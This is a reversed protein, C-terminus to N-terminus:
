QVRRAGDVRASPAKRDLQAYLDRLANIDHCKALKSDEVNLIKLPAPTTGGDPMSEILLELQRLAFNTRPVSFTELTSLDIAKIIMEWDDQEFQAGELSITRISRMEAERNLVINQTRTEPDPPSVGASSSMTAACWQAFVRPVMTEGSCVLRITDMHPLQYRIPLKDALQLVRLDASLDNMTLENVRRGYHGLADLLREHSKSLPRATDMEEFSWHYRRLNMSRSMVSDMCALGTASLGAPNLILCILKSGEEKTSSDLLSALEDNFAESADLTEISWGYDRFIGTVFETRRSLARIHMGIDSTLDFLTANDSYDLRMDYTDQNRPNQQPYTIDHLLLKRLACTGDKKLVSNRTSTILEIAALFMEYPCGIQVESLKPNWRIVDALQTAALESDGLITKLRTLRGMRLFERHESIDRSAFEADITEVQGNSLGVAISANLGLVTISKLNPLVGKSTFDEFAAGINRSRITLETLFPSKELIKTLLAKPAKDKLPLATDISLVRLRPAMALSAKSVRIFFDSFNKLELSQIRGNSMLQVIPDYRRGRNMLDRVPGKFHSGDLALDVVNAQTVADSLKRLDDMTVDWKLTIALEQIGLAKALADYFEKALTKSGVAIEISGKEEVYTGSNSEVVNRLQIMASQRSTERFHDFCTWKVHGEFTVLRYLDGYVSGNNKVKLFSQLQRLDGMLDDADFGLQQGTTDMTDVDSKVTGPQNSIFTIAEDVLAGIEGATFDFMRQSEDVLKSQTLPPISMGASTNGYKIMQLVTLVYTGFQEFFEVPRELDYGEHKALHVEHPITSDKAMTHSGCECLYYLRFQEPLLGTGADRRRAAKPLVIFLRPVPYEHLEYTQNSVAQIRNHIIALRDLTELQAQHMKEQMELQKYQLAKSRELEALISRFHRNLTDKLSELQVAQGSLIDQLCKNYLQKYQASQFVESKLTSPQYILSKENDNEDMISFRHLEKYPVATNILLDSKETKSQDAADTPLDQVPESISVIPISPPISLPTSLPTNSDSVTRPGADEIVADLEVGPHYAIQLPEIRNFNEDRLFPVLQGGRMIRKVGNFVLEIDSFFVVHGGAKNVHTPITTPQSTSSPSGEPYRPRFSQFHHDNSSSM